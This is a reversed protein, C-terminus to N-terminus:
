RAASPLFVKILETCFLQWISDHRDVLILSGPRATHWHPDKLCIHEVRCKGYPSLGPASGSEFDGENYCRPGGWRRAGLSNEEM